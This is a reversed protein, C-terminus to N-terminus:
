VYKLLFKKLTEDFDYECDRNIKHWVETLEDVGVGHTNSVAKIILDRITLRSLRTKDQM